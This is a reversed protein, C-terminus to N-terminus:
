QSTTENLCNTCHAGEEAETAVIHSGLFNGLGILEQAHKECCDVPGTPWHVKHTAPCMPVLKEADRTPECAM